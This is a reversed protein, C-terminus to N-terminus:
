FSTNKHQRERIAAEQQYVLDWYEDATYGNGWLMLEFAYKGILQKFRDMLSIQGM